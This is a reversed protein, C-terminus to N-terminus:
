RRRPRTNDPEQQMARRAAYFVDGVRRAGELARWEAELRVRDADLRRRDERVSGYVLWLGLIIVASMAALLVVIQAWVPWSEIM